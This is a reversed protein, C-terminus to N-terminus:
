LAKKTKEQYLRLNNQLHLVEPHAKLALLTASEGLECQDMYWACRSMIEYRVYDYMEKEIFLVDHQPYPIDYAHRAFLYCTPINDPWYHDAIKILPEIRRPRCAYAKLYYEMAISWPTNHNSKHMEEALCGLRFLTIFNEEDWGNLRERVQYFTYAKEIEGLCHYTQALYFVTRPDDPTEHYSKLLLEADRRWRQKSKEVGRSSSKVEVYVSGPIQVFTFIEPVEHVVGKFRIRASARFLRATTFDLSSMKIKILYLPTHNNKEQECFTLLENVHHLCWEADLMLIFKTEPYYQETLELARNRSIAFDVFPEQYICGEIGHRSFFDQTVQVTDDTSGTDLIIIHRIGGSVLPLLTEEIVHAENKIM